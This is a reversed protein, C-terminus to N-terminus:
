LPTTCNIHTPFPHLPPPPHTHLISDYRERDGWPKCIAFARQSAQYLFAAESREGVRKTNSLNPDDPTSPQTRRKRMPVGSLYFRSFASRPAGRSKAFNKPFIELEIKVTPTLPASQHQSLKGPAVLFGDLKARHVASPPQGWLPM